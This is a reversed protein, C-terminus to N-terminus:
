PAIATLTGRGGNASDVYEWTGAVTPVFQFRENVALMAGFSQGGAPTKTSQISATCPLNVAAEAYVWEVTVGLPVAVDSSGDPGKFTSPDGCDFGPVIHIVVGPVPLSFVSFTAVTGPITRTSATVTIAGPASPRLFASAHGSADTPATPIGGSTGVLDGAGSTIRWEIPVDPVGTSGNDVQVVLPLSLTTGVRGSQPTGGVPTIRSPVLVIM